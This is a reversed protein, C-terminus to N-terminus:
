KLDVGMEKLLDYLKTLDCEYKAYKTYGGYYDSDGYEIISVSHNYLKKYQLFTINPCTKELLDDFEVFNTPQPDAHHISTGGDYGCSTGGLSWSSSEMKMNSPLGNVEVWVKSDPKRFVEQREIRNEIFPYLRKRDPEEFPLHEITNKSDLHRRGQDNHICTKVDKTWWVVALEYHDDAMDFKLHEQLYKFLEVAKDNTTILGDLIYHIVQNYEHHKIESVIKKRIEDPAKEKKGRGILDIDVIHINSKSRRHYPSWSNKDEAEEQLEKAYTTKGSAPLGWLLTIRRKETKKDKKSKM